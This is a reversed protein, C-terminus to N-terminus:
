PINPVSIPSTFSTNNHGVPRWIAECTTHFGYTANLLISLSRTYLLHWPFTPGSWKNKDLTCQKELMIFPVKHFVHLFCQSHLQITHNKRTVLLFSPKIPWLTSLWPCYTLALSHQLACYQLRNPISNQAYSYITDLDLSCKRLLHHRLRARNQREVKYTDKYTDTM